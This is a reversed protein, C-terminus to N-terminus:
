SKIAKKADYLMAHFECLDGNNECKCCELFLTTQHADIWDLLISLQLAIEQNRTNEGAPTTNGCFSCTETIESRSTMASELTDKPSDAIRGRKVVYPKAVSVASDRNPLIKM